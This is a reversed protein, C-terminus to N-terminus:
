SWGRIHSSAISFTSHKSRQFTQEREETQPRSMLRRASLTVGVCPPRDRELRPRLGAATGHRDRFRVLLWPRGRQRGDRGRQTLRRWEPQACPAVLVVLHVSSVATGASVVAPRWSQQRSTAQPERAIGPPA